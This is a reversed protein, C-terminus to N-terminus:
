FCSVHNVICEATNLPKQQLLPGGASGFITDREYDATFVELCKGLDNNSNATTAANLCCELHFASTRGNTTNEGVKM